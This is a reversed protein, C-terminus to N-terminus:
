LVEPTFEVISEHSAVVRITGAIDAEALKNRVLNKIHTETNFLRKSQTFRESPFPTDLLHCYDNRMFDSITLRINAALSRKETDHTNNEIGLAIPTYFILKNWDSHNESNVADDICNSLTDAAM